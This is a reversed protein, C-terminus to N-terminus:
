EAGASRLYYDPAGLRDFDDQHATENLSAFAALGASGQLDLHGSAEWLGYFVLYLNTPSPRLMIQRCLRYGVFKAPAVASVNNM